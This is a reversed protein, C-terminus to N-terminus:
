AVELACRVGHRRLQECYYEAPERLCTIVEAAGSTHAAALLRVAADTTLSVIVHTLAKVQLADSVGDDNSRADAYLMLRYRPLARWLLRLEEDTRQPTRQSSAYITQTTDRERTKRGGFLWAM